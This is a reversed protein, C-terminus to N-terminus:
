IYNIDCEIGKITHTIASVTDAISSSLCSINSILTPFNGVSGISNCAQNIEPSFKGISGL